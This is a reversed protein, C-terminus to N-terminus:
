SASGPEVDTAILAVVVDRPFRLQGRDDLRWGRLKDRHRRITRPTYGLIEAAEGTTLTATERPPHRRPM